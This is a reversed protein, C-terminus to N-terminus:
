EEVEAKAMSTGKFEKTFDVARDAVVLGSKDVLEHAEKSTIEVGKNYYYQNTTM